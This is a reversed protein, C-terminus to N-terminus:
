FSLFKSYMYRTINNILYKIRILETKVSSTDSVSNIIPQTHYIFKEQTIIKEVFGNRMLWDKVQTNLKEFSFPFYPNMYGNLKLLELGQVGFKLAIKDSLLYLELDRIGHLNIWQIYDKLFNFDKDSLSYGITYKVDINRSNNLYQWIEEAVNINSICFFTTIKFSFGNEFAYKFKHFSLENAERLLDDCILSMKLQEDTIINNDIVWKFIEFSLASRKCCFNNGFKVDFNFGHNLLINLM